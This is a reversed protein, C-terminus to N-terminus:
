RHAIRLIISRFGLAAAKAAPTFKLGALGDFVRSFEASIKQSPKPSPSLIQLVRRLSNSRSIFRDFSRPLNAVSRQPLNLPSGKLVADLLTLNLCSVRALVGAKGCILNSGLAFKFQTFFKVTWATRAAFWVRTFKVREAAHSVSTLNLKLNLWFASFHVRLIM